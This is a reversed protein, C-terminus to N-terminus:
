EKSDRKKEAASGEREAKIKDLVDEIKALRKEVNTLQHMISAIVAAIFCLLLVM